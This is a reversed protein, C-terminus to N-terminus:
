APPSECSGGLGYFPDGVCYKPSPCWSGGNECPLRCVKRSGEQVCKKGDCCRTWIECSEHACPQWEAVALAVATALLGYIQLKM